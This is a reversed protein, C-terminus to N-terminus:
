EEQEGDTVEHLCEAGECEHRHELSAATMAHGYGQFAEYQAGEGCGFSGCIGHLSAQLDAGNTTADSVVSMSLELSRYISM